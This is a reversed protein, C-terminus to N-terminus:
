NCYHHGTLEGDGRVETHCQGCYAYCTGWWGTCSWGTETEGSALAEANDLSVGSLQVETQSSYAIYGAAAVVALAFSIKLIKKKM